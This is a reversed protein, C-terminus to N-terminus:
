QLRGSVPEVYSERLGGWDIMVRQVIQGEDITHLTLQHSKNHRNVPFRFRRSYGNRMVQDKWSRGYEQFKNTLLQMPNGDVSVGVSNGKGPYLPWLPVVHVVVSISDANIQPLPYTVTGGNLQVSQWDYGLGELISVGESKKSFATLDVVHARGYSEHSPCSLDVPVDAIYPAITLAPMNHYLSVYGPPVTMMNRWKGNLMTNYRNNLANISDYAQCSQHAAWNAEDPLLKGALEQNLQAMLFKRNMQYSAQVPYQLLEFFAPRSQLPLSLSIRQAEDSIRKYDALRHQAEHYNSFSFETSKLGSHSRDDWQYEWGMYEPKRSWALRYYDNLLSQCDIGFTASLFAAQHRNAERHNFSSFNWAMDFFTQMGLEMPKIDGVNLLWYRNAGADYAKKLENYMLAPPTTNLWLYDHPAGLYSLHYYVGSGGSRKQEEPNSIRKMYGYNDDVWVLTIDDPLKLGNEYIDMTEKYPVFIQPITNAKKRTHKELLSRQNSIVTDLLLTRERLSLNGRLGADHLGRMAVTYINEYCSAESLRDNWKKQITARNTKYNWDGDRKQNWENSDANNILLPECHSTTIIIGYEDAVVKNQPITYFAHTCPHMAPALMNAKLRLLLECVRAYTKPGIDGVETEYNTAAWPQLGWDEDNIFIGRYKVSPEGSAYYDIDVSVDTRKKVPVDAWWYWPSVGIRQSVDYIGYITGRMDSGAIILMPVPEDTVSIVYSEWHNKLDNENLRGQKILQNILKSKGYTGIIINADKVKKHAILPNYSTVRHVDAQFDGIARVVQKSEERSYVITSNRLTFSNAVLSLPLLFVSFLLLLLTHQRM